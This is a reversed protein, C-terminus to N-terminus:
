QALIEGDKKFLYSKKRTPYDVKNELEEILQSYVIGGPLNKEFDIGSKQISLLFWAGTRLHSALNKFGQYNAQVDPIHSVLELRERWSIFLM